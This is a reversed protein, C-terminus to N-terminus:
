QASLPPLKEVKGQIRVIFHEGRRARRAAAVISPWFKVLRWAQDDLKLSDFAHALYVAIVGSSQLASREPPSSRQSRDLSVLIWGKEGLEPIWVTDIANEAYHHRLATVEGHDLAGLITAYRPSLCNDIFFKL